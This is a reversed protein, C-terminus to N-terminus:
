ITPFDPFCPLPTTPIRPCRSPRASLIAKRQAFFACFANHLPASCHVPTGRSLYTM